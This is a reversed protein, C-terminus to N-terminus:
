KECTKLQITENFITYIRDQKYRITITGSLSPKTGSLSPKRVKIITSRQRVISKTPMSYPFVIIWM